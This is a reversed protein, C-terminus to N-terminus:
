FKCRQRKLCFKCIIIHVSRLQVHTLNKMYGLGRDLYLVHSNGDGWFTGERIRGAFGQGESRKADDQKLKQIGSTIINLLLKQTISASDCSSFYSFSVIYGVNLFVHYVRHRRPLGVLYLVGLTYLQPRRLNLVSSVQNLKKYLFLQRTLKM